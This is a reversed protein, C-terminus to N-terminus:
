SLAFITISVVYTVLKIGFSTSSAVESIGAPKEKLLIASWSVACAVCSQNCAVAIVKNGLM